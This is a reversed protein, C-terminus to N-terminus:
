NLIDHKLSKKVIDRTVQYLLDEVEEDKTETINNVYLEKISNTKENFQKSLQIAEEKTYLKHGNKKIDTLHEFNKSILCDAFSEGSIYRCIFEELRECHHLQKTAWGYKEIEEHQSPRDLCLAKYKEMSMGATAKVCSVMNYHAIKERNDFMPKWLKYFMPNIVFYDTFLIELFNINQKRFQSMMNRVDKVDIHENNKLVITTSTEKKNFCIDEFSPVVLCKTDIDSGEYDLDYNQSGQLFVGLVTNGLSEVYHYDSVLRNWVKEENTKMRM